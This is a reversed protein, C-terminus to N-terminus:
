LKIVEIINPIEFCTIYDGQFNGICRKAILAGKWLLSVSRGGEGKEM